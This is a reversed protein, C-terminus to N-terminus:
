WRRRLELLLNLGPADIGSGHYRYRQDLLNQASLSVQWHQDPRWDARINITAWGPTGNPDIRIDNVDRPSLRDQRSAFVAYSEVSLGTGWDYGLGLRGNTPPMRDAPADSGDAEEQEGRAHNLVADIRV